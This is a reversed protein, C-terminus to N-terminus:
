EANCEGKYGGYFQIRIPETLKLAFTNQRKDVIYVHGGGSAAEAILENLANELQKEKSM